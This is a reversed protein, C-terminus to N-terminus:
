GFTLDYAQLGSSLTVTLTGTRQSTSTFVPHQNPTGSVHIVSAPGGDASATV